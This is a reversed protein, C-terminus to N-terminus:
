GTLALTGPLISRPEAQYGGWVSSPAPQAAGEGGGRTGAGTVHISVRDYRGPRLACLAPDAFVSHIFSFVLDFM